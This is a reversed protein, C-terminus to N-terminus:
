GMEQWGAAKLQLYQQQTLPLQTAGSQPDKMAPLAVGPGPAPGPQPMAGAAPDPVPVAPTQAAPAAVPRWVGGLGLKVPDFPAPAAAPAAAAAKDIAAATGPKSAVQPPEYGKLEDQVGYGRLQANTAGAFYNQLQALTDLSPNKGRAVEIASRIGSIQSARGGPSKLATYTPLDSLYRQFEPTSLVGTGGAKSSEGILFKVINNYEKENAATYSNDMLQQLRVLNTNVTRGNNLINDLAAREGEGLSQYRAQDVLSAGTPLAKVKGAQELAKLALANQLQKDQRANEADITMQTRHTAGAQDAENLVKTQALQDATRKNIGEQEYKTKSQDYQKDFVHELAQTRQTQDFERVREAQSADGQMLGALQGAQAFTKDSQAHDMQQLQALKMERDLKADPTNRKEWDGLRKSYDDASAQLISGLDRGRNGLLSLAMAWYTKSDNNEPAPEDAPLSRQPLSQNTQQQYRQITDLAKAWTDQQPAAAQQPQQSDQLQKLVQTWDTDDFAM